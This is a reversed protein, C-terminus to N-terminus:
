YSSIVSFKGDMHPRIMSFKGRIVLNPYSLVCFWYGSLPFGYDAFDQEDTTATLKDFRNMRDLKKYIGPYM